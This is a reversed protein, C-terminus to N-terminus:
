GRKVKLEGFMLGHFAKPERKENWTTFCLSVGRRRLLECFEFDCAEPYLRKPPPYDHSTELTEEDKDSLLEDGFGYIVRQIVGDSDLYVHWSEREFNYGWLLTRPTQNKLESGKIPPEVDAGISNIIKYEEPTM